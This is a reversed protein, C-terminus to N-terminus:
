ERDSFLKRAYAFQIIYGVNVVFDNVPLHRKGLILLREMM